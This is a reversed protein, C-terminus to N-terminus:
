FFDFFDSIKVVLVYLVGADVMFIEAMTKVKQVGMLPRLSRQHIHKSKQSNHACAFQFPKPFPKKHYLLTLASGQSPHPGQDLDPQLHYPHIM